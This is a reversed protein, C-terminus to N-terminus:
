GALALVNMKVVGQSAEPPEMCNQAAVKSVRQVAGSQLVVAMRISDDVANSQIPTSAAVSKADWPGGVGSKSTFGSGTAYCKKGDRMVSVSRGQIRLRLTCVDRTTAKSPIMALSTYASSDPAFVVPTRAEEVIM